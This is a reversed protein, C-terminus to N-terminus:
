PFRSTQAFRDLAMAVFEDELDPLRAAEGAMVLRAVLASMSAILAWDANPRGPAEAAGRVARLRSSLAEFAEAQLETGAPGAAVIEVTLLRATPPDAALLSLATRIGSKVKEEESAAEACAGEVEELLRGFLERHAALLGSQKDAFQDYFTANSVGARRTIDTVAVEAFGREACAEAIAAILRERQNRSVLEPPLGHAGPPLRRGGGTAAATM